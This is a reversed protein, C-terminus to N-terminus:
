PTTTKRNEVAEVLHRCADKIVKAEKSSVIARGLLQHLHKLHMAAKPHGSVTDLAELLQAAMFYMSALEQSKAPQPLRLARSAGKEAFLGKRVEYCLIGVSQALNLSSFEATPITVLIGCHKLEDNTLGASEPGFVFGVRGFHLYPLLPTALQEPLSTPRRGRGLRASTGVLMSFDPLIDAIHDAFCANELLHTANHTATKRAADLDITEAGIICLHQIGMNFAARAACGVNEAYKPRVLVVTVNNLEKM